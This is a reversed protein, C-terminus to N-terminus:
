HSNSLIMGDDRHNQSKAQKTIKKLGFVAVLKDFCNEDPCINIACCKWSTVLDVDKDVHVHWVRRLRQSMAAEIWSRFGRCPGGSSPGMTPCPAAADERPQKLSSWAAELQKLSSWTEVRVRRILDWLLTWNRTVDVQCWCIGIRPDLFLESTTQSCGRVTQVRTIGTNWPTGSRHQHKTSLGTGFDRRGVWSVCLWFSDFRNLIPLRIYSIYCTKEWDRNWFLCMPSYFLHWRHRRRMLEKVLAQSFSRCFFSWVIYNYIYIYCTASAAHM